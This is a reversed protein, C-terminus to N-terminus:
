LRRQAATECTFRPISQKLGFSTQCRHMPYCPDLQDMITRNIREAVGNQAPNYPVSLQHVIGNKKLFSEFETLSYEGGNDSRRIKVPKGTVNVAYTHFEKFKELVESKKKM